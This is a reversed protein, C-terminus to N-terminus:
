STSPISTVNFPSSLGMYACSCSSFTYRLSGDCCPVLCICTHMQFVFRELHLDDKYRNIQWLDRTSERLTFAFAALLSYRFHGSSGSFVCFAPIYLPTPGASAAFLNSNLQRSMRLGRINYVRESAFCFFQINFIRAFRLCFWFLFILPV